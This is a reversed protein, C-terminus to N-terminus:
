NEYVPIDYILVPNSCMDILKKINSTQKYAWGVDTAYQHWIYEPNQNWKMKYLTNQNYKSNNIYGSAIWNAGGTIATDVSFWGNQAAKLIGGKLPDSDIAGIGFMNYAKKPLTIPKGDVGTISTLGTNIVKGDSFTFIIKGSSNKTISAGKALNSTGNGTELLSHSLLYIPSINAAKAGNLYSTGKGELVGRGKLINNLDTVTVGDNYTLKLFQLKYQSNSIFNNPNVYQSVESQTAPRSSTTYVVPSSNNYELKVYDSLTMPVNYYNTTRINAYVINSTYIIPSSALGSDKGAVKLLYTGKTPPTWQIEKSYDTSEYIYKGTQFNYVSLKYVPNNIVSSSVVPDITNNENIVYEKNKLTIYGNYSSSSSCTFSQSYIRDYDTLSNRFVGTVGGKRVMVYIRYNGPTFKVSTVFKNLYGGDKASTYGSTIESWAKNSVNYIYARYQNSEGIAGQVICTQTEGDKIPSKAIEMLSLKTGHVVSITAVSKTNFGSVTGYVTYTGTKSYAQVNEWTVNVKRYVGDAYKANVTSPLTPQVNEVTTIKTGSLSVISNQIVSFSLTKYTDYYGFQSSYRTGRTGAKKGLIIIRYNGTENLVRTTITAKISPYSSPLYGSTVSAWRGVHPNYYFARYQVKYSTNSSVIAKEANGAAIQNTVAVNLMMSAAKAYNVPMLTVILTLILIIGINRRSKLIKM